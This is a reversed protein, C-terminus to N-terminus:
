QLCICHICGQKSGSPLTVMMVVCEMSSASMSPSVIAMMVVPFSLYLSLSLYYELVIVNHKIETIRERTCAVVYLQYYLTIIYLLHLIKNTRLECTLVQFATNNM